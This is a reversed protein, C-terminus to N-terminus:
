GDLTALNLGRSETINQSKSKRRRVHATELQSLMLRGGFRARM